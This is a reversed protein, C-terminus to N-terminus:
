IGDQLVAFSEISDLRDMIIAGSRIRFYLEDDNRIYILKAAFTEGNRKKCRLVKNICCDLVHVDKDVKEALNLNIYDKTM